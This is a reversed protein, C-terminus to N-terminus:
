AARPSSGAARSPWRRSLTLRDPGRARRAASTAARASFGAVNFPPSGGARAEEEGRREKEGGGRRVRSRRASQSPPLRRQDRLGRAARGNRVHNTYEREREFPHVFAMPDSGKKRRPADRHIRPGSMVRPTASRIMTSSRYKQAIGLGGAIRTRTSTKEAYM